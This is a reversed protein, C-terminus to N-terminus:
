LGRSIETKIKYSQGKKIHENRRFTVSSRCCKEKSFLKVIFMIKLSFNSSLFFIVSFFFMKFEHSLQQWSAVAGKKKNQTDEWIGFHEIQFEEENM